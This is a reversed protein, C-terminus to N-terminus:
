AVHAPAAPRQRHRSALMFTFGVAAFLTVSTEPVLSFQTQLAHTGIASGSSLGDLNGSMFHIGGYIRSMGAEAAADSFGNFSRFIDPLGDGTTDSGYIFPTDDGFLSALIAAAAGSFSSHGSTYEPFPPTNILPQWSPDPSTLPNGDLGANAIATIPRWLEESYKAEWSVIGADAMAVNLAAFLRASGALSLSSATALQAAIENWQGPPTVTGAGAAWFLAIETQDATRTASSLRGLDKVQDLEAAYQPSALFTAIDPGPLGPPAFSSTDPIAFPTVQGWGPLLPPAFGPSTPQWYGPAPNPTYPATAASSAGDASRWALIGSAIDAGWGVGDTISQGGGLSSIHSIYLSDFTTAFSPYLSSLIAHASASAAAEPSAGAPATGPVSYGPAAFTQYTGSISEIANFMALNLMALNRAALPPPSGPARIAELASSNWDVIITQAPALATALALLILILRM